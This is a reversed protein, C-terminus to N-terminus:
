DDFEQKAISQTNMNGNQVKYLTVKLRSFKVGGEVQRESLTLPDTKTFVKTALDEYRLEYIGSRIDIETWSDKARLTFVRVAAANPVGNPYLKVLVATDNASNDVTMTSRGGRQRKKCGRIGGTQVSLAAHDKVLNGCLSQSIFDIPTGSPALKKEVSEMAAISPRAHRVDDQSPAVFAPLDPKLEPKATTSPAPAAPPRTQSPLKPIAPFKGDIEDRLERIEQVLPLEQSEDVKKPKWERTLRQAEAIQTPRLFRRISERLKFADERVESDTHEAAAALNLWMYAAVDDEPLGVGLLQARGVEFQCTPDGLEAAKHCATIDDTSQPGGSSSSPRRQALSLGWLYRGGLAEGRDLAYRLLKKAKAVDKAVHVGIGYVLGLEASAFADGNKAGAELFAIGSVPNPQDGRILLMGFIGQSFPDGCMARKYIFSPDDTAIIMQRCAYLSGADKAQQMLRTTRSEDRQIPPPAHGLLIAALVQADRNGMDALKLAISLAKKPDKNPPEALTLRIAELLAERQAELSLSKAFYAILGLLIASVIVLELAFRLWRKRDALPHVQATQDLTAM